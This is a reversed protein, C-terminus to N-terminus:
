KHAQQALAKDIAHHFEQWQVSGDHSLDYQSIMRGSAIARIFGNLKAYSLLRSVESRDLQCNHDKDLQSFADKQSKFRKIVGM